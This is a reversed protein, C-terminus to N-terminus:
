ICINIQKNLREFYSQEAAVICDLATGTTEGLGVWGLAAAADVKQKKRGEVSNVSYQTSSLHISAPECGWLNNDCGQVM